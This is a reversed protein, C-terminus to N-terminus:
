STFTHRKLIIPNKIPFSPTTYRKSILLSSFTRDYIRDPYGILPSARHGIVMTDETKKCGNSSNKSLCIKLSNPLPAILL